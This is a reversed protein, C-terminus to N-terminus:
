RCVRPEPALSARVFPALIDAAHAPGEPTSHAGNDAYFFRAPDRLDLSRFAPSLDFTRMAGSRSLARAPPGSADRNGLVAGRLERRPPLGLM